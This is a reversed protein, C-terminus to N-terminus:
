GVRNKYVDSSSQSERQRAPLRDRGEAVAVEVCGGRGCRSSTRFQLIM